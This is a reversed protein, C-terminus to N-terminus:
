RTGFKANKHSEKMKTQVDKCKAAAEPSKHPCSCLPMPFVVVYTGDPLHMVFLDADEPEIVIGKM